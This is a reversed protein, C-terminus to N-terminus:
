LLLRLSSPRDEMLVDSLNKAVFYGPGSQLDGERLVGIEAVSTRCCARLTEDMISDIM